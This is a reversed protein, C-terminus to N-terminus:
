DMPSISVPAPRASLNRSKRRRRRRKRPRKIASQNGGTQADTKKSPLDGSTPESRTNQPENMSSSFSANDVSASAATEKAIPVAGQEQASGGFLLSVRRSNPETPAGDPSSSNHSSSWEFILQKLALRATEIAHELGQIGVTVKPSLSRIFAERERWFRRLPTRIGASLEPSSLSLNRLVEGVRITASQQVLNYAIAFSEEYAVLAKSIAVDKMKKVNSASLSLKEQLETSFKHARSLLNTRPRVDEAVAARDEVIRKFEVIKRLMLSVGEQWLANSQHLAVLRRRITLGENYAAAAANLNGMFLNAEGIRDLSLSLNWQWETNSDDIEVLQRDISLMEEYATLAGNNDGAELKLDGIKELNEGVNSLWRTDPDRKLIRRWFVVSEEYAAIAGKHDAADLKVDGLKKLSMSIKLQRQPDRRALNTLQRWIAVGEEYAAIAEQTKRAKRYVNGIQDLICAEDHRWQANSPDIKALRRRIALSERCAALEAMSQDM